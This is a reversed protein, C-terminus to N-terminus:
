ESYCKFYSVHPTEKSKNGGVGWRGERERERERERESNKKNIM